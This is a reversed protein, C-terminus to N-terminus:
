EIVVFCDVSAASRCDRISHMRDFIHTLQPILCYVPFLVSVLGAGLHKTKGNENCRTNGEHM